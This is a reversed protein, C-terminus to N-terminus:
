FPALLESGGRTALARWLTLTIGNSIFRVSGDGFSVNVGGSHYSRAACAMAVYPSGSQTCPMGESPMNRCGWVLDPTASNPEAQARFINGGM